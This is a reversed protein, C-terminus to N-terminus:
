QGVGLAWFGDGDWLWLGFCGSVCAAAVAVTRAQWFWFGAV